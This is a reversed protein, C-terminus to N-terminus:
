VSLGIGSAAELILKVARDECSTGNSDAEVPFSLGISATFNNKDDFIPAAVSFVARKEASLEAYGSLRVSSIAQELQAEDKWIPAGFEWVPYRQIYAAKTDDPWFALFVLSTSTRFPAVPRNNHQLSGPRDPSLRLSAVIDGGMDEALIITAKSMIRALRLMEESATKLLTRKYQLDILEQLAMGLRYKVPRTAKSLYGKALLTRALNHATSAQLGLQDSLQQLTLGEESRAVAEMIDLSRVVSQILDNNAM